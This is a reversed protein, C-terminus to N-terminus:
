NCSDDHTYRPYHRPWPGMKAIKLYCASSVAQM